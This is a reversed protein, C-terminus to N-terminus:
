KSPCKIQCDRLSMFNNKNGQCGGYIFEKCHGIEKDFFYRRFAARCPGSDEPLLCAEHLNACYKAADLGILYSLSLISNNEDM